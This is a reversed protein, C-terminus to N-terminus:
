SVAGGAEDAVKRPAARAVSLWSELGGAADALTADAEAAARAARGACDDLAALRDDLRALAERMADDGGPEAPAAPEGEDTRRLTDALSEEIKELVHLWSPPLVPPVSTAPM